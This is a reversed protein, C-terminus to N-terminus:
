TGDSYDQGAPMASLCSPHTPRLRPNPPQSESSQKLATLHPLVNLINPRAPQDSKYQFRNLPALLDQADEPSCWEAGRSHHDGKGHLSIWESEGTRLKRDATTKM